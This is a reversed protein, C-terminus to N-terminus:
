TVHRFNTILSVANQWPKRCLPMLKQASMHTHITVSRCQQNSSTFSRSVIYIAIDALKFTFLFFVKHQKIAFQPLHKSNVYKQQGVHNIFNHLVTPRLL